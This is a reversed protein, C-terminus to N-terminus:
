SQLKSYKNCKFSNIEELTMYDTIRILPYDRTIPEKEIIDVKYQIPGSYKRLENTLMRISERCKKILVKDLPSHTKSLISITDLNEKILYRLGTVQISKTPENSNTM